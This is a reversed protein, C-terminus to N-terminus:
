KDWCERYVQLTQEGIVKWDFGKAKDRNQMGMVRLDSSLARQMAGQLGDSDNPDYLIRGDPALVEDLFKLNAAIVAKRFSMALLVSGSTFIKQFPFVVVDSANM